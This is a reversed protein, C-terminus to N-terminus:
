DKDLAAMQMTSGLWGRRRRSKGLFVGGKGWALTPPTPSEPAARRNGGARPAWRWGQTSVVLGLRAATPSRQPEHSQPQLFRKCLLGSIAIRPSAPLPQASALCVALCWAPQTPGAPLPSSGCSEAKPEQQLSAAATSCDSTPATQPPLQSRPQCHRKVRPQTVAPHHTDPHPHTSGVGARSLPEAAKYTKPNKKTTTTPKAFTFVAHFGFYFYLGM